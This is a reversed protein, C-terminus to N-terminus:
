SAELGTLAVWRLQDWVQSANWFIIDNDLRRFGVLQGIRYRCGYQDRIWSEYDRFFVLLRQLLLCATQLESGRDCRRTRPMDNPLWAVPEFKSSPMWRPEFSYRHLFIGGLRDDGIFVGFGRLAVRSWRGLRFTYLSSVGPTDSARKQAGYKLLLNGHRSEIDRGLVYLQQHLLQTGVARCDLDNWLCYTPVEALVGYGMRLRLGWDVIIRMHLLHAVPKPNGQNAGNLPHM